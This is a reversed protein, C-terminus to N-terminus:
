SSLYLSLIFIIFHSGLELQQGRLGLFVPPCLSICQMLEINEGFVIIIIKSWNIYNGVYFHSHDSYGGICVVEKLNSGLSLFGLKHGM